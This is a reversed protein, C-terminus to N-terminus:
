KRAYYILSVISILVRFSIYMSTMLATFAFSMLLWSKIWSYNLIDNYLICFISSVLLSVPIFVMLNFLLRLLFVFLFAVLKGWVNLEDFEKDKYKYKVYGFPSTEGKLLGIASDRIFIDKIFEM